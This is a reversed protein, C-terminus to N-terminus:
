GRNLLDKALRAEDSSPYDRILRNLASRGESKKNNDLLFKGHRYLATPAEPSRPYRNVVLVYVSDGATSNREKDYSDGLYFMARSAEEASPYTALLQEFNSRATAYAGNRLQELGTSFLTAPGPGAPAGGAPQGGAPPVTVPVAAQDRIQELQARTDQLSKTTQGLLAQLRVMQDGMVGLEGNVSAQFSAFRANLVRVSDYLREVSTSLMAIQQRRQENARVASTDIAGLQSSLQARTVRLEDQLLRINGQTALCGTTAILVLPAVVALRRM